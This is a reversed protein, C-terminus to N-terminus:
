SCAYFLFLILYKYGFIQFPFLIKFTSTIIFYNIQMFTSHSYTSTLPILITKLSIKIIYNIPSFINFNNIDLYKDIILKLNFTFSFCIVLFGFSSVFLDVVFFSLILFLFNRRMWVKIYVISKEVDLSRYISCIILFKRKSSM